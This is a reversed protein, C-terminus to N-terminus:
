HKPLIVDLGLRALQWCLGCTDCTGVCELANARPIREDPQNPDDLWAVPLGTPNYLEYGPWASLVVSLNAPITDYRLHYSKTFALFKIQPHANVVRCMRTLYSRGLIDGASHWRFFEIPKKRKRGLFAEVAGFYISPAARAIALNNAWAQRASPYMKCSQVAYCDKACPVGSVCSAVPTLNVSPITRLKTNELSISVGNFRWSKGM